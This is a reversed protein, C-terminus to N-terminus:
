FRYVYRAEIIRDNPIDISQTRSVVNNLNADLMLMHSDSIDYQINANLIYSRSEEEAFSGDDPQYYDDLFGQPTGNDNIELNTASSFNNTIAVNGSISLAEDFMFYTAGVTLGKIEINSLGGLAETTNYSLGVNTRLPWALFQTKLNMSYTVSESSGYNFYRDTSNRNSYNVSLDHRLDLFTIQQTVSANFSNTETLKASAVTVTDGDVIDVNRVSQNVLAGSLLPNTQEFGNDRERYRYGLTIRPLTQKIPYWSVSGRYGTTNITADQSGLLNNQTDEYGLTLYVRNGLLSVRDTINFGAIDNVIASNGLSTYDPGIWQYQISLNNNLYNLNLRSEGAFIGTPVFIETELSGDSGTKLKVPLTTINENMIFLLSLQDILDLTGQDLEFGLDDAAQQDLIGPGIDDNLLSVGAKADLQIRGQHANISLDTGAVFNGKPRPNAGEFSLANPNEDLEQRQSPTLNDLLEPSKRQMESYSGISTISSTDDQVKL